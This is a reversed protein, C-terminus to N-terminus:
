EQKVIQIDFGLLDAIHLIEEYTFSNRYLKNHMSQENIELMRALEKATTRSVKLMYKVEEKGAMKNDGMIVIFSISFKLL